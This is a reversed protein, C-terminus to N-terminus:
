RLIGSKHLEIFANLLHLKLTAEATWSSSQYRTLVTMLEHESAHASEGVSLDRNLAKFTSDFLSRKVAYDLLESGRRYHRYAKTEFAGGTPIFFKEIQMTELFASAFQLTLGRRQEEGSNLLNHPPITELQERARRVRRLASRYRMRLNGQQRLHVNDLGYQYFAFVGDLLMNAAASFARLFAPDFPEDYAAYFRPGTTEGGAPARPAHPRGSRSYHGQPGHQRRTTRRSGGATADGPGAKHSHQEARASLGASGHTHKRYDRVTEYAANVHAMMRNSWEPKEPNYDPHFRKVCRRFAQTLEHDTANPALGLLELANHLQM